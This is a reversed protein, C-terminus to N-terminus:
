RKTVFFTKIFQSVKQVNKATTPNTAYNNYTFKIRVYYDTLRGKLKDIPLSSFWAGDIFRYNRSSPSINLDASSQNDTFCEVSNWNPGIAKFQINQPTVALDKNSKIALELEHNYVKGYFKCIQTGFNQIYIQNQSNIKLWYTSSAFLPNTNAVPPPYSAITVPSICVYEGEGLNDTGSSSKIVDGIKFDTSPMQVGYYIYNKSNNVSLMLDNHNHYIAPMFDYFGVIANLVHSYGITFDKSEITTYSNPDITFDDKFSYKFTLYSMKFKPDYSGTIGYGLLPIEPIKYNNTNYISGGSNPYATGENFESNFYSQLGKVLSIEQIEGSMGMICLARNRMDFWTFGFETQTLGFQHQNGYFSTIPDFRDIVGGTGITTSAGGTAGLLQRELVPVSNIAKNQWVLVRNDKSRINNIEGYRSDLDIFDATLFKRFSDITEGLYKKGAFRARSEFKSVFAYKTPLAPYLIASGESSYSKNYSYGEPYGTGGQAYAMVGTPYMSKASIKLGARLNYNVNCECPFYIGVSLPEGVGQLNNYLGYGIDILSLYCDGGFVEINNFTYKNQGVYTGSAYTGNLTNALTFADIKQYHGTSMYLTGAIASNSQGGYQSSKDAGTVCNAIIKNDNYRLSDDGYGGTTSYHNLQASKFIIKRCGSSYSGNPNGLPFGVGGSCVHNPESNLFVPFGVSRKNIYTTGPADVDFLVDEENLRRFGEGESSTIEFTRPSYIDTGTGGSLTFMKTLMFSPNSSSRLDSGNLWFAEEMKGGINGYPKENYPSIFTGGPLNSVLDDPCIYSYLNSYLSFANINGGPSVAVPMIQKNTSVSFDLMNQMVLGQTIIRADRKARVISFGDIKDIIEQPIDLASINIASANLVFNSESSPNNYSYSQLLGGKAPISMFDFDKLYKVYFPNGKKDFFLIGFRYRESSWYGLNHSSVAPDKYNWFATTLEIADEVRKGTLFSTFKNKTTCPRVAGANTFNITSNASLITIVDGKFYQTGQYFVTDTNDGVTVLWRTYPRCGFAPPNTNPIPSVDFATDVNNCHTTDGHEMMRYPFQSMTVGSLDLDFEDRETLNGILNYNKDTTLTKVKLISAPFLTLDSVSVDGLNVNGIDEIIMSSGTILSKNVISITTPIDNINDYEACCLEITDFNTDINDVKVKISKKSSVLGTNNGGGVTDKYKNGTLYSAFNDTEASIPFSPYSWSSQAGETSLSLRYFYVSAGCKKNGTGYSSFSIDGLLRNPTWSLLNIDFYEIVKVSGAFNAYSTTTATFINDVILISPKTPGYLTGTGAPHEVVGSLVMYKKGVQLSTTNIYNTYINNGFNFVKPENNNDTFYTRKISDNEKFSMSEIQHKKSFKLGSHHYYPTYTAAFDGNGRSFKILGIEGYGGGDSSDNTHFVVLDDIFSSFGISMPIDDSILNPFPPTSASYRSPLTLINRNGNSMEITYHNGDYSILMGNKMNRYTGDPQLMFSSDQHLGKEFTNIVSDAM